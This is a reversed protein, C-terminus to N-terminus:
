SGPFWLAVKWLLVSVPIAIAVFVLTFGLAKLAVQNTVREPQTSNGAGSNGAGGQPANLSRIGYEPPNTL